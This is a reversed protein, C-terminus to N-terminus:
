LILQFAFPYYLFLMSFIFIIKGKKYNKARLLCIEEICKNKKIDYVYGDDCYSPVCIKSWKGDDGCEYGGHIISNDFICEDTNFLLKKNKPNCQTKYKEFIYHAEEM